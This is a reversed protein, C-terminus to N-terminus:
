AKLPYFNSDHCITVKIGRDHDSIFCSQGAVPTRLHFNRTFDKFGELIAPHLRNRVPSYISTYKPM